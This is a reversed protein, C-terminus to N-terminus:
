HSGGKRTRSQIDMYYLNEDPDYYASELEKETYDARDARILDIKKEKALQRITAFFEDKPMGLKKNIDLLSVAPYRTADAIKEYASM